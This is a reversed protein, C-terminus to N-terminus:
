AAEKVFQRIRNAVTIPYVRSGYAERTFLYDVDEYSIGFYTSTSFMWTRSSHGRLTPFLPGAVPRWADETKKWEWNKPDVKPMWGIACCVTGCGGREERVLSEIDFKSRPLADLFEALKLLRDKRM